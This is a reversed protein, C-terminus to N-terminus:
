LSNRLVILAVHVMPRPSESTGLDAKTVSSTAAKRVLSNNSSAHPKGTQSLLSAFHHM